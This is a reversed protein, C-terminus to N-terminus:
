FRRSRRNRCRPPRLFPLADHGLDGNVTDLDLDGGLGGHELSALHRALFDRTETIVLAQGDGAIAAHAQDLDLATRGFGGRGAGHGHGVALDDVRIGLHHALRAGPHHFEQQEVMRQITRDAVLAAFAVKLILRHGIPGVAATEGLVLARNRVLIQPRQDLGDHGTTDMAGAAHTEDVLDRPRVLKAGNPPALM